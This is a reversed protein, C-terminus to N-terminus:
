CLLKIINKKNQTRKLLKKIIGTTILFASGFNASAIEVPAGIITAFATISIGGSAQLYFM